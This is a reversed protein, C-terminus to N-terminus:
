TREDSRIARAANVEAMTANAKPICNQWGLEEKPFFLPYSLADYCAHYTRIDHISRDKGQLVVSRHVAKVM